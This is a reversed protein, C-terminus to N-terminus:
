GGAWQARSSACCDQPWFLWVWTWDRPGQGWKWRVQLNQLEHRKFEGPLTQQFEPSPASGQLPSCSALAPLLDLAVSGGSTRIWWCMSSGAGRAQLSPRWKAVPAEASISFVPESRESLAQDPVQDAGLFPIRPPWRPGATCM